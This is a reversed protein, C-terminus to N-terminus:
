LKHFAAGGGGHNIILTPGMQQGGKTIIVKDNHTVSDIMITDVSLHASAVTSYCGDCTAVSCVAIYTSVQSPYKGNIPVPNQIRLLAIDNALNSATYNPHGIRQAATRSVCNSGQWQICGLRIQFSSRCIYCLYSKLECLWQLYTVM